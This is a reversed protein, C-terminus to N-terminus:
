FGCSEDCDEKARVPCDLRPSIGQFSVLVGPFVENLIMPFALAMLIERPFLARNTSLLNM